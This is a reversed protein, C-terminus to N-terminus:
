RPCMAFCGQADAHLKGGPWERRLWSCGPAACGDSHHGQGAVLVNTDRFSQFLRRLDNANWQNIVDNNGTFRGDANLFPSGTIAPSAIDRHLM